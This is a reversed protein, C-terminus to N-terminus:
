PARVAPSRFKLSRQASGIRRDVFISVFSGFFADGTLKSGEGSRAIWRRIQELTRESLPNVEIIAAFYVFKGRVGAYDAASGLQLNSSSLCVSVVDTAKKFIKESVGSASEMRVRFLDEWLDYVVRCSLASLALPEKDKKDEFAYVRTVITQPLGSKLDRLLANDAIDGASFSLVAVGNSWNVAFPRISLESDQANARTGSALAALLCFLAPIFQKM